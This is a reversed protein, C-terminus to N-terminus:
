KRGRGVKPKAITEWFRVEQFELGFNRLPAPRVFDPCPTRSLPVFLKPCFNGLPPEFFDPYCFIPAFLFFYDYSLGRPMGLSGFKVLIM